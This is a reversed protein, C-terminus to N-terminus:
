RLSIAAEEALASVEVAYTEMGLERYTAIAAEILDRAREPDGSDGRAVLMRAYGERTHALWPIARMRENVGLADEFHGEADDFRELAAALLGLDRSVSGRFGEAVDVAVYEAWPALLRYLAAAADTDGLAVSSEALFSMGFLWEQDFPLVAFDDVALRELERRADASRGSRTLLHVLACRFVPRAPYETVLSSMPAEVEEVGSGGQHDWLAYRQLWYIPIAGQPLAREGLALAEAALTEADTFRGAALALMGQAAYADWLQAPQRLEKAIRSAAALDAEAGPLDGTMLQAVIRLQHGAQLRERDGSRAALECLESGFALCEAVTDPAIIAHARGALAYAFAEPDGGRRALEVAERSLTDRRVRSHEDRLAGALRALLRARQGVDDPGLAALGEELLPVLREDGGARVWVIRGGYGEAARALEHALGLRRAIAAADLFASKAFASRGARSEADGLLLFLECCLVEDFPQSAYSELAREYLRAGEEYALVRTAQDGARRAYDVAKAPPAAPMAMSFHHALETLHADVNGAYLAELVEAVRRHLRARHTGPTEEYLTDRTLAHGFRLRGVAGPIEEVVRARIAEDLVGLLRDIGTYDAVRELAVLGFERGFVSALSLVRRCEGSLERLRRGITERITAPIPIGAPQNPGLRGESALLRVIESVFLPNGETKAHLAAVLERSPAASATVEALRRVETETLGGLQIRRTVPERALAVLTSELPDQVTPDLDRFTGVILVRADGLASAVYRLLLLSPEDATQLDDLVLVVPREAAVNRLFSATSDFLRFRAAEAEGPEPAPLEPFLERLEPVIQAVEPAHTGLQRRLLPADSRRVYTRLSQTWPWYAPAGGAEWCRGVLVTAGRAGARSMLEDALRSKGIGPEGQLLFLRSRGAFADGLGATLEALEQERGVFARPASTTADEPGGAVFDLAPDQRLVAQHLERLERSPEIGLEDVLARRAEQYAALAEVQRGSRYLALMLQARLRERLPQERVLAELDGVLERHRGRHLDLDIRDELCTLRLEELRGLEPQAFREDAVDSLPPGRWLALAEEFRGESVLEQFRELDLEGGAVRLRYGPARTEVRERGLLKRLGHVYVQLAKQATEPPDEDWLGEILRDRSVVENAQLLLMALLARQKAGGLDLVQGDSLAELPGLIRFEL